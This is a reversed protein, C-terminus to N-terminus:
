PGRGSRLTESNCAIFFLKPYERYGYRGTCYAPTNIPDWAAALAKAWGPEVHSRKLRLRVLAHGNEDTEAVDVIARDRKGEVVVGANVDNQPTGTLKDTVWVDVLATDGVKYVDRRAKAEVDFTEASQYATCSSHAPSAPGFVALTGVILFALMLHRTITRAM